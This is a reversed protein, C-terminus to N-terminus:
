AMVKRTKTVTYTEEEVELHKAKDITDSVIDNALKTFAKMVEMPVEKDDIGKCETYVEHMVRDIRAHSGCKGCKNGTEGISTFNRQGCITCISKHESTKRGGRYLVLYGGSRGNFGAQWNWNHEEAFDHIMFNIDDYFNECEMLEFVKSQLNYPIVKHIKLNYAPATSNNWSNMTSYRIRKPKM